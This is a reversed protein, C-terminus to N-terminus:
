LRHFRRHLQRALKEHFDALGFAAMENRSPLAVVPVRQPRQRHPSIGPAPRRKGRQQNLGGMDRRAIGVALPALLFGRLLIPLPQRTLQVLGDLAEARFTHNSKDRFGHAAGSRTHQHGHRPIQAGHALYAVPVPDQEDQVFHHAAHAACAAQMGARLFAHHRVNLGNGFAQAATVLGNAGHKRLRADDFGDPLAASKELMSVRIEAMRDGTRGRQRHLLNDLAVAQDFAHCTRSRLKALAKRVTGQSVKYRTALDIESPIVEGPKWEGGQLSRLLLEKIQQYLPSFSPTAEAVPDPLGSGPALITAASPDAM